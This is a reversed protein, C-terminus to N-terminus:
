RFYAAIERVDNPALSGAAARLRLMGLLYGYRAQALDRESTYLQQQANLLDLNIRVGGKISQRTAEMLLQGSDVAKDLARIRTVSSLVLSYQKRLELLVKDTQAQLDARSKERMAVSQRTTASVAGGQYLPITLQLGIARVTSDQNYTNITESNSKSLSAIMELKPMHGARNKNIEQEAGQLAYRAAQIDPNNALALERLAEYGGADPPALRFQPALQDLGRVEEGVLASLTTRLTQANDRAEILQAESLDLRAQTELMDTRTGEGGKFLRDNVQKQELYADRQIQSLRVQEEAFLADIYAGVVRLVMEQTRADFQAISFDTQAQGQKYRAWAEMSFLPQRLQVVASKSIYEPHTTVARGLVNPETIDAWNRNTAYSGQLSPLLASRGLVRYEAGADREAVAGRFTPDNRLASEYAQTLSMAHAGGHLLLMAAGVRGAMRALRPVNTFFRNM